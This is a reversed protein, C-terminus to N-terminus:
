TYKLYVNHIRQTHELYVKLVTPHSTHHTPIGPLRVHKHVYSHQWEWAQRAPCPHILMTPAVSFNEHFRSCYYQLHSTPHTQPDGQHLWIFLMGPIQYELYDELNPMRAWFFRCVELVCFCIDLSWAELNSVCAKLIWNIWFKAGHGLSWCVELVAIYKWINQLSSNLKVKMRHSLSLDHVAGVQFPLELSNHTEFLLAM